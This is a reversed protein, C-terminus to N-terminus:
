SVTKWSSCDVLLKGDFELGGCILICDVFFAGCLFSSPAATTPSSPAVIAGGAPTLTVCSTLRRSKKRAGSTTHCIQKQRLTCSKRVGKRLQSSQGTRGGERERRGHSILAGQESETGKAKREDQM